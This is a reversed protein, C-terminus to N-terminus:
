LGTRCAAIYAQSRLAKSQISQAAALTGPWDHKAAQEFCHSLDIKSLPLWVKFKAADLTVAYVGGDYRNAQNIANVVQTLMQTAWSADVAYLIGATTVMAAARADLDEIKPFSTMAASLFEASMKKKRADSAALAASLVLYTRLRVDSVRNVQANFSDWNLKKLSVEAMRFSLYTNLQDRFKDDRLEAIKQVAEAYKGDDIQQRIGTALLEARESPDKAKEAADFVTESSDFRFVTNEEVIRQAV